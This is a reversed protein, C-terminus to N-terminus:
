TRAARRLRKRLRRWQRGTPREIGHLAMLRLREAHPMRRTAQVKGAFQPKRPKPSQGPNYYTRQRRM